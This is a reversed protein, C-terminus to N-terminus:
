TLKLPSSTYKALYGECMKETLTIRDTTKQTKRSTNQSTKGGKM